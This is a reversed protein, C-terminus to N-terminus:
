CCWHGYGESAGWHQVQDGLQQQQWLRNEPAAVHQQLAATHQEQGRNHKHAAALRQELTAAYAKHETCCCAPTAAGCCCQLRSSKTQLSYSFNNCHLSCRCSHTICISVKLSYEAFHMHIPM